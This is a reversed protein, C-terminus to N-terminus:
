LNHSSRFNVLTIPFGVQKQFVGDTYHFAKNNTEGYGYDFNGQGCKTGCVSFGTM